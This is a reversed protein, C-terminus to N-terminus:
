LTIPYSSFLILQTEIRWLWCSSISILFRHVMEPLVLCIPLPIFRIFSLYSIYASFWLINTFSILSLYISIYFLHVLPKGPPHTTFFVGALAPSM